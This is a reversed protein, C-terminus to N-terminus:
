LPSEAQALAAVDAPLAVTAVPKVKKIRNQPLIPFTEHEYENTIEADDAVREMWVPSFMTAMRVKFIPEGKPGLKPKGNHIIPIKKGEFDLEYIPKGFEDKLEYPTADIQFIEGPTITGDENEQPGYRVYGGYTGNQTARVKM